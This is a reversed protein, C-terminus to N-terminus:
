FTLNMGFVITRALPYASWDFGPTLATPRVSAAPNLGSYKTWTLLNQASCYVRLAKMKARSLLKDSFNYGLSVTKLRLYSGDEIVRSSYATIGQGIASYLTNSPNDPTWRNEVTKFLNLLPRGSGEFVLRNANLVDNGYSWQFFINLDVGKYNFNNTFGGTHVPNPNGIITQDMSNVMGDGNIDKYKIDGPHISAATNGNNPIEPKLVYKGGSTTFDSFQYIGDFVYGYFMAIPYGPRAIYPQATNYNANWAVLTTLSPQDDNLNLIKNRNFSINFNSEWSFNKTSVNKTILTFEFGRNSVDGINKYASGYGTSAALTANLLLDTTKKYYYDSIIEVRNKLFGLDLGVNVSATTEWKLQDNGLTAPIVGTTLSNNFPYGSTTNASNSLINVKLSPLYAFDSVRNNGILGYGARLKGNSLFSLPKFLNEKKFNWAASVSPFSGWKHGDSFKSSGDYRLSATLLYKDKYSYNVRGLFSALTSYSAGALAGSVTGEDLGNIGLSENPILIASVGDSKNSNRQLTFGTLVVLNHDKIKKTYTLTNENLWNYYNYNSISGNVGNTSGYGTLPSGQPTNTNYFKEYRSNSNTIGGSIKLRLDKLLKYELFANVLSLKNFFEDYTNKTRLLPNFRFDATAIVNPDLGDNMLAEDDERTGTVPSYGWINNMIYATSSGSTGETQQNALEGYRNLYSYYASIGLRLKDNIVQGLYLKGTNRKIGSEIIIGKQDVASASLSYNTKTDGGRLSLTHSQMPADKILLSQWDFGKVDKYSELTPHESNIFVPRYVADNYELQYKVFEYPSLMEHRKINQQVGAWGEYSIVPKGAKGKRTTIIVVGNAARAGYIATASADKLIDISEIDSPNLLGNISTEIPFGDVVFLPSNDQTISNSGRITIFSNNGPQGDASVVQVGAVRGALADDVNAVPAKQIDKMNVSGASGTLDKRKVEGYGIVVVDELTSETPTLRVTITSATGVTINKSLYGVMSVIVTEGANVDTLKIYGVDNAIVSKKTQSVIATAQPLPSGNEDLVIISISKVEQGYCFLGLLFCGFLTLTLKM